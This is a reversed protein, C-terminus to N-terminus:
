PPQMALWGEVDTALQAPELMSIMHGANPYPFIDIFREGDGYILGLRSPSSADVAGAGVITRLAPALALTPVVLDLAGATLFAPVDRLNDVFASGEFNQTQWDRTTPEIEKGPLLPSYPVYYAQGSPLAGLAAVITDEAPVTDDPPSCKFGQARESQALLPIATLPVGLLAAALDPQIHASDAENDRETQQEVTAAFDYLSRDNADTCACADACSVGVSATVASIEVPDSCEAQIATTHAGGALWSELLIQGAYLSTARTTAAIKSALTPDTYPALDWRGRLYALLWTLRVGAYSEGVWYVPGTLAPHADLFALAALLFDAADVYENFITPACDSDRPARGTVVDYSYGAQRPEIYVLNAFRTFSTPNAVVAGGAVVTTPGTGYARVIDDAFGNSLFLIPEKAPDDDAPRLNYFLRAEAAISVVAGHVTVDRPPISLFGAEVAVDPPAAPAPAASTDGCHVAVLALPALVLGRL